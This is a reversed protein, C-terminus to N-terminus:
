PVSKQPWELTNKTLKRLFMIPTLFNEYYVDKPTFQRLHVHKLLYHQLPLVMITYLINYKVSVKRHQTSNSCSHGLRLNSCNNPNAACFVSFLEFNGQKM